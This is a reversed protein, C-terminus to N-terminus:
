LLYIDQMQRGIVLKWRHREFSWRCHVGGARMKRLVPWSWASHIELGSVIEFTLNKNVAFCVSIVNSEAFWRHIYRIAHQTVNLSTSSKRCFAAKKPAFLHKAPIASPAGSKMRRSHFNLLKNKLQLNTGSRTYLDEKKALLEQISRVACAKPGIWACKM